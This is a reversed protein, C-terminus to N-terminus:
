LEREIKSFKEKANLLEDKSASCVRAYDTETILMFVNFQDSVSQSYLSKLATRFGKSVAETTAFAYLKVLTKETILLDFLTDRENLTTDAKYDAM